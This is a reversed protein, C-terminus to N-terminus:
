NLPHSKLLSLSCTPCILHSEFPLKFDQHSSFAYGSKAREVSSFQWMRLESIRKATTDQPACTPTSTRSVLDQEIEGTIITNVFAAELACM